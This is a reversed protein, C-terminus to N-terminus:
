NITTLKYHDRIAIKVSNREEGLKGGRGSPLSTPHSHSNPVIIMENEIEDTIRVAKCWPLFEPYKEVDMVIQYVQEISHECIYEKEFKPM